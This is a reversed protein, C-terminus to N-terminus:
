SPKKFSSANTCIWYNRITIITSSSLRDSFIVFLHWIYYKELFDM